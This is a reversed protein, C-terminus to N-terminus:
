AVNWAFIVSHCHWTCEDVFANDKYRSKELLFLACASVCLFLGFSFGVDQFVFISMGVYLVTDFDFDYQM